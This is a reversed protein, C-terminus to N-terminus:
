IPMPAALYVRKSRSMTVTPGPVFIFDTPQSYTLTITKYGAAVASNDIEPTSLTGNGLGFDNAMVMARIDDDSPMPYLTAYRAAQGLAHQLGANAMFLLGVVFIGYIFLILVPLAIAFEIANAGSEDRLLRKSLPKM